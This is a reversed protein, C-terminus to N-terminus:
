DGRGNRRTGERVVQALSDLSAKTGVMAETVRPLLDILLKTTAKRDAYERLYLMAFIVSGAVGMDKIYPLLDM